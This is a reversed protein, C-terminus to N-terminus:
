ANTLLEIIKENNQITAQRLAVNDDITTNVGRNILLKVTEICNKRAALKLPEGYRFNIDAGRDLLFDIMDTYDCVCAHILLENINPIQISYTKQLYVAVELRNNHIATTIDVDNDYDKTYERILIIVDLYGRSAACRSTTYMNHMTLGNKMLFLSIKMLNRQLTWKLLYDNNIRLDVGQKQLMIYTSLEYLDYKEIVHMINVRFRKNPVPIITMDVIKNSLEVKWLYRANIMDMLCNEITRVYFGGKGYINNKKDAHIFNSATILGIKCQTSTDGSLGDQYCNEHTTLYHTM